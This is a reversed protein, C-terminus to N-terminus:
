TAPSAYKFLFGNLPKAYRIDSSMNGNCRGHARAADQLSDFTAVVQQTNIDIKLVKKKLRDSLKLGTTLQSSTKLDCGFYGRHSKGKTYVGSPVFMQSFAAVLRKRETASSAYEPNTQKKWSEFAKYLDKCPVRHTYGIVCCEQVFADIDTPPDNYTMELPKLSIGMYSALTAGSKPDYKKVTKFNDNLYKYFANHTTKLCCRGWMRHAGFLEASFAYKTEDRECREDIFKQFDLPNVTQGIDQPTTPDDDSESADDTPEHIHEQPNTPIVESECNQHPALIEDFLESMRTHLKNNHITGCRNVIGDLFLQATDLAEKAIEFSVNFWEREPDLRYEDLIHHVVKELLKHNSCKKAYVMLSTYNSSRHEAERRALDKSEGIKITNPGEQYLYVVDKMDQLDVRRRLKRAINAREAELAYKYGEVEGRARQIQTQAQQLAQKHQHISYEYVLKELQPYYSRIIDGKKTRAVMELIKFGDISIRIDEVNRGGHRGVQEEPRLLLLKYEVNIKLHKTLLDKFKDKRVFGLWEMANECTIPFPDDPATISMLFHEVFVKQHDDNLREKAYALLSDRHQFLALSDM